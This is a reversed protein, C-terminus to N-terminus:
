FLYASGFLLPGGSQTVTGVFITIGIVFFDSIVGLRASKIEKACVSKGKSFFSHGNQSFYIPPIGAYLVWSLVRASTVFTFVLFGILNLFPM